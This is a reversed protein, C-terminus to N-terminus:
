IEEGSEDRLKANKVFDAEFDSEIGYENLFAQYEMPAHERFYQEMLQYNM